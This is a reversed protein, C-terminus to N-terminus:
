SCAPGRACESWACIRATEWRLLRSHPRRSSSPLGHSNVPAEGPRSGRNLKVCAQVASPLDSRPWPWLGHISRAVPRVAGDVTNLLPHTPFRSHCKSVDRDRLLCDLATYPCSKFIDCVNLGDRLVQSCPRDRISQGRAETSASAASRCRKAHGPRAMLVSVAPARGRALPLPVCATNYLTLGGIPAPCRPNQGAPM